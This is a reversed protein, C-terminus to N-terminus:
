LTDLRQRTFCPSIIDICVVRINDDTTEDISLDLDLDWASLLINLIREYKEDIIVQHV